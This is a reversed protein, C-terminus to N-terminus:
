RHLMSFLADILLCITGGALSYLIFFHWSPMSASLLYVVWGCHCGLCFYCDFLKIFFVGAWPLNFLTRRFWNIMGWPGDSEKLLFALGYIALVAIILDMFNDQLPEDIVETDGAVMVVVTTTDTTDVALEGARLILSPAIISTDVMTDM